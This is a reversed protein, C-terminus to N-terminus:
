GEELLIYWIGNQQVKEVTIFKSHREYLVESEDDKLKEMDHGKKANKIYIQVQGDPNYLEPGKTTSIYEDFVIKKDKQFKSVFETIDEQYPFYLSRSLNGSFTPIKKLAGDLDRCFENEEESLPVDKRLKENIVYSKSSFYDTIAKGEDYNLGYQGVIKRYETKVGNEEDNLGVTKRYNMKARLDADNLGAYRMKEVKERYEGESQWSKDHVNQRQGKGNAPDYEVMCRCHAHRRYVDKPVDPYRYTGAVEECWECCGPAATREIKPTLGANYHFQANSRISDDVISQSFTRMPEGLVWEVDSFQDATSVKNIIGKVKDENLEPRIAKIGIGAKQNLGEQVKVCVDSIVEHDMAMMPRIVRDAINFYMRGDPLMDESLDDRFVAALLRGAEMSFENAEQYTATGVRVKDYISKLKENASLRKEFDDRLTKLLEPAIDPNNQEM